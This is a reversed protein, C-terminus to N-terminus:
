IKGSNALRKKTREKQIKNSDQILEKDKAFEEIIAPNVLRDTIIVNAQKLRKQLKVTILETDGPGAGAIIVKRDTWVEGRKGREKLSPLDLETDNNMKQESM